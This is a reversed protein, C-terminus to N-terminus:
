YAIILKEFFLKREQYQDSNKEMYEILLQLNKREQTAIGVLKKIETQDTKSLPVEKGEASDKDYFTDEGM